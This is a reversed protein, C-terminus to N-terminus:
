VEASAPEWEELLAVERRGMSKYAEILDKRLSKRKFSAILRGIAQDYSENSSRVSDLADKTDRYLKVTTTITDM